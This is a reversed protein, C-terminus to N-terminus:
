DSPLCGHLAAAAARNVPEHIDLRSSYVTSLGPLSIVKYEWKLVAHSGSLAQFQGIRSSIQWRKHKSHKVQVANALKHDTQLWKALYQEYFKINQM